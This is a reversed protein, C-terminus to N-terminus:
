WSQAGDAADGEGALERHLWVRAMSWDSRVTRDSVGLRQAIMVETMGGFFRMEVVRASRPHERELRKLADDLELLDIGVAGVVDPLEGARRGGGRKQARRRRAYDVLIHRMTKSAWAWFAAETEFELGDQVLLRLWMESLLATPQLTHDAREGRLLQGALAHLDRRTREGIVGPGGGPGVQPGVEPRVGPGIGSGDAGGSAGDAQAWVGTVGLGHEDSESM